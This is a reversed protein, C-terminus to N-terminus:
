GHYRTPAINWKNGMYIRCHTYIDPKYGIKTKVGLRELGKRVKNVDSVNTFDDTFVCIVHDSNNFPSVKAYSGLTGAHTARAIKYWLHDVESSPVFVLWKGALDGFRQGLGMIDPSSTGDACMDEWIQRVKVIDVDAM